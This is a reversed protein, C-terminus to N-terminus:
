SDEAPASLVYQIDSGERLVRILGRAELMAAGAGVSHYPDITHRHSSFHDDMRTVLGMYSYAVNVSLWSLLIAASRVDRVIRRVERLLDLIPLEHETLLVLHDDSVLDDPVRWSVHVQESGEACEVQVSMGGREVTERIWIAMM